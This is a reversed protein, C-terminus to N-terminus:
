KVKTVIAEAARQVLPTILDEGDTKAKATETKPGLGPQGDLATLTYGFRMEDKAKTSSAMESVAQTAAVTAGRAVASAVSGGPISWAATYATQGVIRGFVGGGGSRKRGLTLTLVHGCSKHRAEELANAMLRADLLTVQVSPGRLFSAMLERVPVAVATADGEVGQVDPLMIAICSSPPAPAPPTEQASAAGPLCVIAVFLLLRILLRAM